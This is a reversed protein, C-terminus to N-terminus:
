RANGLPLECICAGQQCGGFVKASGQRAGKKIGGGHGFKSAEFCSFSLRRGKKAHLRGACDSRHRELTREAHFVSRASNGWGRGGGDRLPISPQVAFLLLRMQSRKGRCIEKAVVDIERCAAALLTATGKAKEGKWGLRSSGGACCELLSFKNIVLGAHDCVLVGM